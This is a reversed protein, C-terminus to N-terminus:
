GHTAAYLGILAVVIPVTVASIVAVVTKWDTGPAPAPTTITVGNLRRDIKEGLERAMRDIRKHLDRVREHEVRSAEDMRGEIRTVAEKVDGIREIMQDEVDGVRERNMAVTEALQDLAQDNWRRREVDVGRRRPRDGTLDADGM